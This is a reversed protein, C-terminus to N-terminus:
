KPEKIVSEIDNKFNIEPQNEEFYFKQSSVNLYKDLKFKRRISNYKYKNGITELKKLANNLYSYCNGFDNKNYGTIKFLKNEDYNLEGIRNKNMYNYYLSNAALLSPNISSSKYDILSVEIFYLCRFYNKEDLNLKNKFIELFKLSTPFTINFNAMDLIQNEMQLVQNKNYANDTMHILEKIEPPYIEEYKCAILLATIGLLQLYKRHINKKSLYKDILNITIFLTETLLNFKIHVEVLWDLLIMRMKENIDTQVINMYNKIPLDDFEILKLHNYIDDVYEKPIQPNENIPYFIPIYFSKTNNKHRYDASKKNIPIISILENGTPINLHYKRRYNIQNILNEKNKSKQRYNLSLNLMKNSKEREKPLNYQKRIFRMINTDRKSNSNRNSNQNQSQNQNNSTDFNENNTSIRIKSYNNYNNITNITNTNKKYFNMTRYEYDKRKDRYNLIKFKNADDINISIYRNFSINSRSDESKINSNKRIKKFIVSNRCYKRRNSKSHSNIEKLTNRMVPILNSQKSNISSHRSTKNNYYSPINNIIFNNNNININLSQNENINPNTNNLNVKILNAMKSNQILKNISPIKIGICINDKYKGKDADKNIKSLIEGIKTVQSNSQCPIETLNNIDKIEKGFHRNEMKNRCIQIQKNRKDYKKKPIIIDKVRNIAKKNYHSQINLYSDM